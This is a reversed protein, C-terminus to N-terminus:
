EIAEVVGQKRYPINDISFGCYPCYKAGPIWPAGCSPCYKIEKLVNNRINNTNMTKEITREYERKIDETTLHTYTETTRIDTHGLIRQLTFLNMGKKLANTAFTHRLIHPRVKELSVGAKKALRKLRKYLGTYTLPIIKDDVKLKKIKIWTKLLEITERTVFVRRERGYKTERVVIEKNEFDIDGVRIGLLEKSRIGTDILIRLILTDLYDTAANFLKELESNKLAYLKRPPKKTIPVEINLGLWKIFKRIYLSYYHLTTLRSNKDKKKSKKFGKVLRTLRWKNIDALTIDALRKEGIFELFDKLASYYAKVTQQSAGSAALTTLFENLISWNDLELIEKPAKGVDINKPMAETRRAVYSSKESEITERYRQLTNKSPSAKVENNNRGYLYDM